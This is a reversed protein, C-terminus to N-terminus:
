VDREIRARVLRRAVLWEFLYIGLAFALGLIWWWLAALV